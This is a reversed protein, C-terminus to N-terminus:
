VYESVFSVSYLCLMAYTRYACLDITKKAMEHGKDMSQLCITSYKGNVYGVRRYVSGFGTLCM